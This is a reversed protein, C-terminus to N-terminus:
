QKIGIVATISKMPVMLYDKSLMIGVNEKASLRNLLYSQFEIPFDAYGPSFRKSVNLGECILNNVYDMYSEIGASAIADIYYAHAPNQIYTKSILKDVNVGATVAVIYVENLGNLVKLLASSNVKHEEFYCIENINKFSIRAYAYRYTVTDNYKKNYEQIISDDLNIGNGMRAILENKNIPVLSSPTAGIIVDKYIM